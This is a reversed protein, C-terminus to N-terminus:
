SGALQKAEAVWDAVQTLTPPRKTVNKSTNIENMKTHLNAAIRHQLEKCSDVGSEELLNSYQRGVGKLRM